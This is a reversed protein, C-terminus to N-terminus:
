SGIGASGVTASHLAERPERVLNWAGAIVIFVVLGIVLGPVTEGLVALAPVILLVGSVRVAALGAASCSVADLSVIYLAADVLNDLAAALLGAADAFIGATGALVDRSLHTALIWNPTRRDTAPSGIRPVSEQVDRAASMTVKM